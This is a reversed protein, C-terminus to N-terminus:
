MLSEFRANDEAVVAVAEVEAVPRVPVEAEAATRRAHAAAEAPIAAAHLPRRVTATMRHVTTRTEPRHVARIPM